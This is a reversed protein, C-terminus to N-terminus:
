RALRRVVDAAPEERALRFGQGAWLHLVEREGTARLPRTLHHLHPYATPAGASHETLFRNVIGRARRGTFARTIATTEGTRMAERHAPRTAAEPCLMFATGVQVADAGAARAAHVGDADMIGGAAVLPLDVEERVLRLLTLLGVEGAPEDDEFTGRHGGAETGQAVLVDAGADRALVAEGPETVTVWVTTGAAHLTEVEEPHPCAFAFTVHPVREDAALAIKAARHDDDFHPDGLEVGHREAEPAIEAAYRAIADEDVAKEEVLLLNLGFPGDTRERLDAIEEHVEDPTRYGAALVGLGGAECVAAALAPTSPGGAMPAQVILPIGTV